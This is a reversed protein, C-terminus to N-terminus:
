KLVNHRFNIWKNNNNNKNDSNELFLYDIFEEIRCYLNFLNFYSLFVKWRGFTKQMHQVLTVNMYAVIASYVPLAYADSGNNSKGLRTNVLQHRCLEQTPHKSRRFVKVM